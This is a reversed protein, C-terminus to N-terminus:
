EEEDVVSGDDRFMVIWDIEGGSAPEWDVDSVDVASLEPGNMVFAVKLTDDNRLVVNEKGVSVKLVPQGGRGTWTEVVMERQKVTGDALVIEVVVNATIM